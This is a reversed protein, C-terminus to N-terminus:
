PEIQQLTAASYESHGKKSVSLACPLYYTFLHLPPSALQTFDLPQFKAGDHNLKIVSSTPQLCIKNKRRNGDIWSLDHPPLPVANTISLGRNVTSELLCCPNIWLRLDYPYVTYVRSRFEARHKGNFPNFLLKCDIDLCFPVWHLATFICSIHGRGKKLEQFGQLPYVSWFRSIYSSGPNFTLFLIREDTLFVENKSAEFVSCGKPTESNFSSPSVVAFNRAFNESM